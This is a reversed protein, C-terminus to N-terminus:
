NWEHVPKLPGFKWFALVAVVSIVLLLAEVFLIRRRRRAGRVDLNYTEPALHWRWFGIVLGLANFISVLILAALGVIHWFGRQRSLM